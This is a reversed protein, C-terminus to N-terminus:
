FFQFQLNFIFNFLNLFVVLNNFQLFLDRNLVVLDLIVQIIMYWILFEVMEGNLWGNIRVVFVYFGEEIFKDWFICCCVENIVEFFFYGEEIVFIFEYSLFDFSGFFFIFGVVEYYVIGDEDQELWNFNLFCQLVDNKVESIFKVYVVELFVFEKEGFNEINLIGFAWNGLNEILIIYFGIDFYEYIGGFNFVFNGDSDNCFLLINFMDKIGDGWDIIWDEIYM